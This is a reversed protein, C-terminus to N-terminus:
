NEEIYQTPKEEANKEKLMIKTAIEVLEKTANKLVLKTSGATIEFNEVIEIDNKNPEKMLIEKIPLTVQQLIPDKYIGTILNTVYDVSMEKYSNGTLTTNNIM